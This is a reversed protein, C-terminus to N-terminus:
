RRKKYGPHLGKQHMKRLLYPDHKKRLCDKEGVLEQGEM